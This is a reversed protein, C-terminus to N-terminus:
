VTMDGRLLDCGTAASDGQAAASRRPGGQALKAGAAPLCERLRHAMATDDTTVWQGRKGADVSGDIAGM